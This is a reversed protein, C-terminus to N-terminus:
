RIGKQKNGVIKKQSGGGPSSFLFPKEMHGLMNELCRNSNKLGHGVTRDRFERTGGVALGGAAWLSEWLVAWDWPGTAQIPWLKHHWSALVLRLARKGTLVTSQQPQPSVCLAASLRRYTWSQFFGTGDEPRGM